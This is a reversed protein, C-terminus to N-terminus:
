RGQLRAPKKAGRACCYASSFHKLMKAGKGFVRRRARLRVVEVGYYDQGDITMIGQRALSADLTARPRKPPVIRKLPHLQTVRGMIEIDGRLWQALLAAGQESSKVGSCCCPLAHRDFDTTVCEATM